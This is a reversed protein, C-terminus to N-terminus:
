PYPIGQYAVEARGNEERARLYLPATGGDALTADGTCRVETGTRAMERVNAISEIRIPRERSLRQASEAIQDCDLHAIGGCGSLAPLAALGTLGLRISRGSIRM